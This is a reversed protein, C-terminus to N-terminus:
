MILREAKVEVKRMQMEAKRKQHNEWAQIKVEERKFRAMYKAREAEDWAVARTELPNTKSSQDDTKNELVDVGDLGEGRRDVSICRALSRNAVVLQGISGGCLSMVTWM